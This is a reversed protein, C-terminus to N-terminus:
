QLSEALQTLEEATAKPSIFTILVNDKTLYVIANLTSNGLKKQSLYGTQNLANPLVIKQLNADKVFTAAFTDLNFGSEVDVQKLIITKPKEGKMLQDFPIDYAVQVATQKNVLEKGSIFKTAYTLNNPLSSPKYIHYNVTAKAKIYGYDTDLSKAYDSFIILGTPIFVVFAIIILFVKVKKSLHDNNFHFKKYSFALLIVSIINLIFIPDGFNLSSSSTPSTSNTNGSTFKLVSTMSIVAIISSLTPVILM